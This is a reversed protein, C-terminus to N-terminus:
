APGVFAVLPIARNTCSAGGGSVLQPSCVPIMEEGFLWSAEAGPWVGNGFHICADFGTDTFIFPDSRTTINVTIHPHAQHFLPLRPILWRTAFTPVAALEIVRRRGSAGDLGPYPAGATGPLRARWACLRPGAETLSIRRKIRHFLAVGLMDELQAIQKCVASQTLSLEEAARTFSQHRAASELAQLAEIGPLRKRM